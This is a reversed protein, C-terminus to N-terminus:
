DDDKKPKEVLVEITKVTVGEESDTVTLTVTYTGPEAYIHKPAEWTSTDGDGFDWLFTMTDGDEDSVNADFSLTDGKVAVPITDIEVVPPSNSIVVLTITSYTQGGRTDTITVRVEYTGPGSHTHVVTQVDSVTTGDDMDWVITLADGEQDEVDISFSLPHGVRYKPPDGEGGTLVIEAIPVTNPAVYQTFEVHDGEIEFRVTFDGPEVVWTFEVDVPSDIYVIITETVMEVGDVSFAVELGQASAEGDNDITVTYKLTDGEIPAVISATWKDIFPHPLYPKVLIEVETSSTGGFEDTAIMTINHWGESLLLDFAMQESLLGDVDSTWSFTLEDEEPDFSGAANFPIYDDPAHRTGDEPILIVATPDLNYVVPGEINGMAPFRVEARGDSFVFYYQHTGLDLPTSYSFTVGKSWDTGSGTMVMPVDDLYLHSTAAPDNDHDTYNITFEYTDLRTGTAPGSSSGDLLPERNPPTVVPGKLRNPVDTIAPLRTPDTGDSFVFHYEHDDGAPLKTEFYFTVWEDWPGSTDTAMDHFNSDIHLQATTPPLGEADRYMVEFRFETTTDGSPPTITQGSLAPPANPVAVWSDSSSMDGWTDPVDFDSAAPWVDGEPTTHLYLLTGMTKPTGSTIGLFSFTISFERVQPYGTDADWGSISTTWGSWASGTGTKEMLATSAHLCVDDTGPSTGADHDTDLYVEAMQGSSYVFALYVNVGDHKFYVSGNTGAVSINVHGADAWENPSITSDLTPTTGSTVDISDATSTMGLGLVVLTMLCVLLFLTRSLSM